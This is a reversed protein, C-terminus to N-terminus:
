FEDSNGFVPLGAIGVDALFRRVESAAFHARLFGTELLPQLASPLRLAREREPVEDRAGGAYIMPNGLIMQGM